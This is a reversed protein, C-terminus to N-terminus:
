EDDEEGVSCHDLPCDEDLPLDLILEDVLGKIDKVVDKCIHIHSGSLTLSLGQGDSTQHILYHLLFSWDDGDLFFDELHLHRLSPLLKTNALPGDPNPQLFRGSLLANTLYLEQIGPMSPVTGRVADMSLDGGFCVVREVPVYAVFKICLKDAASPRLDERLTATFTAFTAKQTQGETNTATRAQISVSDDFSDVFVGQFREDRRLYDRMYPGFTELIDEVKCRFVNLTLEEMTEPHDLRHLLRFVHNFNGSLSLKRLHRLPIQFASGDDGDRPIMSKSLTLDRLRANSALILLLQSTTPAPSIDKITLYLTTLATTHLSLHEWSSIRTGTSLHLYRLKPFRCRAFFDSVDVCRLSISEIRSCRVDEGDPTLSSLISTLLTRKKSQLHVSRITDRAARDRLADLLHGDLPANSGGM